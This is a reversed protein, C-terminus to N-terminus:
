TPNWNRITLGDRYAMYEVVAWTATSKSSSYFGTAAVFEKAEALYAEIQQDTAKPLERINM